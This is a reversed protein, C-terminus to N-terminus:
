GFLNGILNGLDLDVGLKGALSLLIMGFQLENLSFLDTYRCPAAPITEQASLTIKIEGV